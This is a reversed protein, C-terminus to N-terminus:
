QTIVKGSQELLAVDDFGSILTQRINDASIGSLAILQTKHNTRKKIQEFLDTKPPYNEKSISTFVPSL